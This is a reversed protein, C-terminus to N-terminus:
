ESSISVVICSIDDLKGGLGTAYNQYRNRKAQKAYPTPAEPDLSVKRSEAVIKQAILAPKSKINSDLTFQIIDTDELNDFV